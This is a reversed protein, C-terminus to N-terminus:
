SCENQKLQSAVSPSQHDAVSIDAVGQYIKTNRTALLAQRRQHSASRTAAFTNTIRLIPRAAEADSVALAELTPTTPPSM